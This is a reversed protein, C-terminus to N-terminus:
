ERARPFGPNMAGPHGNERAHCYSKNPPLRGRRGWRRLDPTLRLRSKVGEM